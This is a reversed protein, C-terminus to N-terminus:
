RVLSFRLSLPPLVDASSVYSGEGMWVPSIVEAFEGQSQACIVTTIQAESKWKFFRVGELRWTQPLALSFYHSVFPRQGLHRVPSSSCLTLTWTSFKTM